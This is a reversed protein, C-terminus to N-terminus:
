FINIFQRSRKPPTNTHTPLNHIFRLLYIPLTLIVVIHQVPATVLLVITTKWAFSAEGDVYICYAYSVFLISYFLNLCLVFHHALSRAFSRALPLLLYGTEYRQDNSKKSECVQRKANLNRNNLIPERWTM